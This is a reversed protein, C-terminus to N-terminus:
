QAASLKRSGTGHSESLSTESNKKAADVSDDTLGSLKLVALVVVEIFAGGFDLISEDDADSFMRSGDENRACWRVVKAQLEASLSMETDSVALMERMYEMRESGTMERIRIDGFETTVVDTRIGGGALLDARSLM